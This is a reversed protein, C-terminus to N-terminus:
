KWRGLLKMVGQRQPQAHSFEVVQGRLEEFQFIQDVGLCQRILRPVADRLALPMQSFDVCHVASLIDYSEGKPDVGLLRAVKDITCISLHGKRFMDNLAALASLQRLDDSM